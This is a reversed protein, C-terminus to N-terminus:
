GILDRHSPPYVGSVVLTMLAPIPETAAWQMMERQPAGTMGRYLYESMVRLVGTM